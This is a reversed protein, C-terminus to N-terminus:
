FELKLKHCVERILCYLYNFDFPANMVALGKAKQDLKKRGLM